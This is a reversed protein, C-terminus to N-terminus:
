RYADRRLKITLLYVVAGHIEYLVRYGGIRYRWTTPQFNSLCKINPGSIPNARLIPYAYGM